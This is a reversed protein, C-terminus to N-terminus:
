APLVLKEALMVVANVWVTFGEVVAAVEVARVEESLGEVTPAETVKVAVTLEVVAPVMVPVTVKRSPAFVRPVPGTLALPMAM